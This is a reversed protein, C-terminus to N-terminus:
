SLTHTNNNVCDRAHYMQSDCEWGKVEASLPVRYLEEIWQYRIDTVKSWFTSSFYNNSGQISLAPEKVTISASTTAPTSFECFCGYSSVGISLSSASSWYVYAIHSSLASSSYSSVGSKTSDVLATFMNPPYSKFFTGGTNICYEGRGKGLENSNYIPYVLSRHIHLYTYNTWDVSVTEIDSGAKLTQKSTSYAPITVHEDTVIMKDYTWKKVLEADPRLVGMVVNNGSVNVNAAAYQTVDYEGNETIQITGTPVLGGVNVDATAYKSVNYEGNETIDITGSPILNVLQRQWTTTDLAM